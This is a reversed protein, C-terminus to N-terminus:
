VNQQICGKLIKLFYFNKRFNIGLIFILLRLFQSKKKKFIQNILNDFDEKEVVWGGQEPNYVKIIKYYESLSLLYDLMDLKEKKRFLKKSTLDKYSYRNPGFGHLLNSKGCNSIAEM